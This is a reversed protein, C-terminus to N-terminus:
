LIRQFFQIMMRIVFGIIGVVIIGLGTVKAIMLFENRKPKRSLKIVRNWDKFKETIM